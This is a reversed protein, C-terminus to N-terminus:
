TRAALEGRLTQTVGTCILFYGLFYAPWAVMGPWGTDMLPGSQAISVVNV